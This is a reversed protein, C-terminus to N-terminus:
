FSIQVTVMACAKAPPALVDAHTNLRCRDIKQDGTARRCDILPDPLTFQPVKSEDYITDAPEAAFSACATMWGLFMLVSRLM